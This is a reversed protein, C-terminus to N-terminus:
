SFKGAAINLRPFPQRKHPQDTRASGAVFFEQPFGVIGPSILYVAFNHIFVTPKLTILQVQVGSIDM